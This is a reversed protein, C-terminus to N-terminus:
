SADKAAQRAADIMADLRENRPLWHYDPAVPGHQIVIEDNDGYRLWQYREADVLREAKYQTNKELMPKAEECLGRYVAESALAADREATLAEVQAALSLITKRARTPWEHPDAFYMDDAIERAQEPTTPTTM